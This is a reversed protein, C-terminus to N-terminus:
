QKGHEIYGWKPPGTFPTATGNINFDWDLDDTDDQTFGCTAVETATRQFTCTYPFTAINNGNEFKVKTSLTTTSILPNITPVLFLFYM